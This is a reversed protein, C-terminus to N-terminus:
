ETSLIKPSFFLRYNFVLKVNYTVNINLKQIEYRFKNEDSLQTIINSNSNYLNFNFNM